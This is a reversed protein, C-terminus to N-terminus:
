MLFGDSLGLCPSLFILLRENSVRDDLTMRMYNFKEPGNKLTQQAHLSIPLKVYYKSMSLPISQTGSM